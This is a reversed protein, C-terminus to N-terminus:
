SEDQWLANASITSSGSPTFTFRVYHALMAVLVIWANATLASVITGVATLNAGDTNNPTFWNINDFSLQYSIAVNGSVKMVLSMFGLNGSQYIGDSTIPSSITTGQIPVGSVALQRNEVRKAM